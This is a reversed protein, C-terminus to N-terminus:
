TECARRVDKISSCKSAVVEPPGVVQCQADCTSTLFVGLQFEDLQKSLTEFPLLEILSQAFVLPRMMVRGYDKETRKENANGAGREGQKVGFDTESASDADMLELAKLLDDRSHAGRTRILRQVRGLIQDLNCEGLWVLPVPAKFLVRCEEFQRALHELM